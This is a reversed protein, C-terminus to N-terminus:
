RDHPRWWAAPYSPWKILGQVVRQHSLSEFVKIGWQKAAPLQQRYNVHPNRTLWCCVHRILAVSIESSSLSLSLFSLFVEAKNPVQPRSSVSLGAWELPPEWLPLADRIPAMEAQSILSQSGTFDM